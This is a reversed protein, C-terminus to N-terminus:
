SKKEEQAFLFMYINMQELGLDELIEVETKKKLSLVERLFTILRKGTRSHSM